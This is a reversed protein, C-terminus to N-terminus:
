AILGNDTWDTVNTYQPWVTAVTAHILILSPVCTPRPGPWMTNSPSGSEGAWFPVWSGRGAFPACWGGRKPGHRNHGHDGMEAVASSKNITSWLATMILKQGAFWCYFEIPLMNKILQNTMVVYSRSRYICWTLKICAVCDRLAWERAYRHLGAYTTISSVSFQHRERQKFKDGYIECVLFTPWYGVHHSGQRIYTAGETWRQLTQSVGVVLTSHLLAALVRFGNFNAPTGWVRWCIEATLPDFNVM